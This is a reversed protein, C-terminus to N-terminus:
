SKVEFFYPPLPLPFQRFIGAPKSNNQVGNILKVGQNLVGKFFWM